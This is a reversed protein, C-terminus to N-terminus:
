LYTRISLPDGTIKALIQLDDWLSLLVEDQDVGWGEGPKVKVTWKDGGHKPVRVYDGPQCWAKEVWEMGTQRNRFALPGLLLVKAAQTNWLETQRVDEPIVIGGKTVTKPLKYQVLVRNGLPEVDPDITPFAVALAKARDKGYFFSIKNGELTSM